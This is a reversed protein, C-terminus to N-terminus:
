PMYIVASTEPLYLEVKEGQRMWRRRRLKWSKGWDIECIGIINLLDSHFM